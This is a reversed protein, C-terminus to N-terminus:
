EANLYGMSNKFVVTGNVVIHPVSDWLIMHGQKSGTITKDSTEVAFYTYYVGEQDIKGATQVEYENSSSFNTEYHFGCNEVLSKM